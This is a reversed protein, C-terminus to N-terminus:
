SQQSFYGYPLGYRYCLYEHSGHDDSEILWRIAIERTGAGIDIVTKLFQEFKIAAEKERNKENVMHQDYEVALNDVMKHLTELDMKNYDFRPRVGYMEKYLDSYIQYLEDKDFERLDNISTM